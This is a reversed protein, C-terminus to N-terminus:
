KSQKQGTLGSTLCATQGAKTRKVDLLVGSRDVPRPVAPAKNTSQAVADPVLVLLMIRRSRAYVFIM